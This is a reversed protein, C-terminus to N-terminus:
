VVDAPRQDVPSTRASESAVTTPTPPAEALSLATAAVRACIVTYAAADRVFTSGRISGVGIYENAPEFVSATCIWSPAGASTKADAFV